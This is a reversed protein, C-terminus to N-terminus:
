FEEWVERGDASHPDRGSPPPGRRPHPAVLTLFTLYAVAVRVKVCNKRWRLGRGPDRWERRRWEGERGRLLFCCVGLCVGSCVSVFEPCVISPHLRCLAALSVRGAQILIPKNGARGALRASTASPAKRRPRHPQKHTTRNRSFPM